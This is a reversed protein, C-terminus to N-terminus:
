RKQLLYEAVAEAALEQGEQNWHANIPFYLSRGRATEQQFISTLDLFDLGLREALAQLARRQDDLHAWLVEQVLPSGNSALYGDDGLAMQEAGALITAMAQDDDILPLYVHEKAPLYVLLVRTGLADSAAKLERLSAETLALNVSAEIDSQSASLLSTQNDYFALSVTQGGVEVTLPFRRSKGIGAEGRALVQSFFDYLGYRLSQWAVWSDLPQPTVMSRSWTVWDLGSEKVQHYVAADQLDNGEYYGVVVWDPNRPLGFTKVAEVQAQPGWGRIGLNFTSSGAEQEVVAPWPNDVFDGATFSDGTAVLDYHDLLPPTNRFGNEDTTVRIRFPPLGTNRCPVWEDRNPHYRYGMSVPQDFFAYTSRLRLGPDSLHRWASEPVLAPVTRLILDLALYTMLVCGLVFVVRGIVGFVRSPPRGSFIFCFLVLGLLALWAAQPLVPWAWRAQATAVWGALGGVIALLSWVGVFIPHVRIWAALHRSRESNLRLWAALSAALLCILLALYIWQGATALRGKLLPYGALLGLGLALTAIFRFYFPSFLVQEDGQQSDM